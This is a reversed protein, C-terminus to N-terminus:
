PYSGCDALVSSPARHVSHQRPFRALWTSRGLGGALWHLASPWSVKFQFIGFVHTCLSSHLAHLVLASLLRTLVDLPPTLMILPLSWFTLPPTLLDPPLTLLTLPLPRLQNARQTSQKAAIKQKGLIPLLRMKAM